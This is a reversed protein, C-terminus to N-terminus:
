RTRASRLSRSAAGDSRMRRAVVPAFAGAISELVRHLSQAADAGRRSRRSVILGEPPATTRVLALRDELSLPEAEGEGVLSGAIVVGAIGLVFVGVLAFFLLATM